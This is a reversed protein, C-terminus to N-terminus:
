TLFRISLVGLIILVVFVLSLIDVYKEIRDKFRKGFHYMLISVLFFRGGRGLLSAIVFVPFNISFVGAAITFIKFPIPTFAAAFIALFANSAYLEGVQTFEEQLSYTDIIWQGLTEFLGAGILYGFIGGLVSGLTCIIALRLYKQPRALVMTILLPDPPIPFFSSEAIAIAGLAKEAQPKEAWGIVWGYLRKILRRTGSFLGLFLLMPKTQIFRKFSPRVRKQM